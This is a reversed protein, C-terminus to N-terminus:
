PLIPDYVNETLDAIHQWSHNRIVYERAKRGLQERREESHLLYVIEEALIEADGPPVLIGTVDNQIIERLGGIDSAIVPKGSAMAELALISTAEEVGAVPVSPIVVIDAHRILDPMQAHPVQGTAMFLDADPVQQRVIPMAEVAVSAGNKPSLGKAFLIMPHERNGWVERAVSAMGSGQLLGSEGHFATEITMEYGREPHFIEPDVGNPIVYIRSAEYNDLLWNAIRHDVAIIADSVEVCARVFAECMDLLFPHRNGIRMRTEEPLYGHFTTVLPLHLRKGLGGLRADHSHLIDMKRLRRLAVLYQPIFQFPHFPALLQAGIEGVTEVHFGRKLFEAQLGEIHSAVGGNQGVPGLIGVAVVNSHFQGEVNDCLLVCLLEM